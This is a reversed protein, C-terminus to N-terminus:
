RRAARFKADLYGFTTYGLGAVIGGARAAGWLDFRFVAERLGRLVGAPLVRTVYRRESALGAQSGVNRVVLTKSRGEALCRKRFYAWRTREPTVQHQVEARPDYLIISRPFAESARICFETEECGAADAGERGIGERFGGVCDFVSRRFAMNCGIPNRVPAVTEPQGRYSCGVVWNFEDPFWRPRESPWMPVVGGGFGVVDPDTFHSVMRDLWQLDAVADDDLFAIIEGRALKVGTNRAGSLGRPGENAVVKVDALQGALSHQLDANHDIVVITELAPRAQTRVSELAAILQARRDNSYACVVVSVSPEANGM